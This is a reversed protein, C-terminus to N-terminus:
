APRARRRVRDTLWRAVEDRLGAPDGRLDHRQGERVVVRVLGVPEPVGFPDASGNVVLTPVTPDLEGARSANPRGPPHLPFALALAGVAGLPRATRCAVRAGSSRGGVVLPVRPGVRTRVEAVVALWAEDLAPAAPPVKRGAVRYPQTVRAVAFGAGLAADRAAVLDVAQVGGSAGHGLVLVGRPRSGPEELLVRADGRPTPVDFEQGGIAAQKTTAARKTLASRV